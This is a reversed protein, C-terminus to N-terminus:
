LIDLLEVDFLLLSNPGIPGGPTGREGYGLKAPIWFRYKAGVPMMGVGETWGPIVQNLSFEAPQGREYSDDFVTGDQLTGRYNVRVRDGPKPRQGNGQRLVMYQLGSKTQFVGKQKANNALFEDGQARASEARAALAAQQKAQVRTSFSKRLADAEAAPLARPLKPDMGARLGHMFMPMDFEDGIPQLSRGVDAGVLYGVKTRDVPQPAPKGGGRASISAILANSVARSEAEDLLPKGGEIQNRVSKEFAAMDMDPAAPAVSGGVDMGIMYGIRDRESALDPTSTEQAAVPAIALCALLLLVCARMPLKMAIEPLVLRGNDRGGSTM